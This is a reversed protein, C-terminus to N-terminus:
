WWAPHGALKERATELIGQTNLTQPHEPGLSRKEWQSAGELLTVAERVEEM